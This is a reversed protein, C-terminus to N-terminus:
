VKEGMDPVANGELFELDRAAMEAAEGEMRRYRALLDQGFPTLYAGGGGAGGTARLVVPTRFSRNLSDILLWARKYDMGMARAAASISGTSAVSALLALKGPGIRAGSDLVLTLKLRAM